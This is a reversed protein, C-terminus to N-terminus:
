SETGFLDLLSAIRGGNELRVEENECVLRLQSLGSAPRRELVVFVAGQLPQSGKEFGAEGWGSSAGEIRGALMVDAKGARLLSLAARLATMGLGDKEGLCLTPGTLTFHAACEGLVIGPLTYSFLNPSALAGDQELTTRYYDFDTQTSEYLSSSVLGIVRDEDHRPLGADRLALAIAACGAKTYRDFRGYRSLPPDFLDRARPLAMADSDSPSLDVGRGDSWQGYGQPAVWGGGTVYVEM